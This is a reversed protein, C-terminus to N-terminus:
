RAEGSLKMAAMFKKKDPQMSSILGRDDVQPFKM